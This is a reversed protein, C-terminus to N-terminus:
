RSLLVFCFGDRDLGVVLIICKNHRKVGAQIALAGAFNWFSCIIMFAGIATMGRGFGQALHVNDAVICGAIFLYVSLMCRVPHLAKSFLELNQKTCQEHFVPPPRVHRPPSGDSVIKVDM